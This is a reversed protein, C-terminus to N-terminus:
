FPGAQVGDPSALRKPALDGICDLDYLTRWRGAQGGEGVLREFVRATAQVDPM